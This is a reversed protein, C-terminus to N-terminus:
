KALLMISQPPIIGKETIYATIYDAPTVDFAPNAIKLNKMKKSEKLIEDPSRQEIPELMGWKTLYDFKHMEAASYFPIEFSHAFHAIGSTGIKNVLNGSATVADAGVFVADCHRIFSHAASDVILTTPIGHSALEKATRVGQYLPRTECAIVSFDKGDDFAETFIGTVTSSHCHTMYTHGSRLLSAGYEVIATKSKEMDRYISKQLSAVLSKLEGVSAGEDRQVYNLIYRLYNRLMPETARAAALEDAAVLLASLYANRSSGRFSFSEAALADVAARAINRAGQIKLSKIDRVIRQATKDM